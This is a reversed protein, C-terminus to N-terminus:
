ASNLGGDIVLEAGTMFDSASSALFVAVGEFDDATGWRRLPTRKLFYDASRQDNTIGETMETEIYGPALVNVRIRHRALRGALARGYSLVAGKSATYHPALPLANGAVVSGTLVISGGEARELMHDAVARTTLFVGTLNVDVVRHWEELDLDTPFRATGGTGANAFLSDIKGFTALTREMAEGVSAEDAVDCQVALTEAGLGEIEAAAVQNRDAARSWIAVRAGAKALGRAMGLGIGRNGGTVVSVHGTLDFIDM